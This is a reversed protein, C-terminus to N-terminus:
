SGFKQVAWAPLRPLADGVLDWHVLDTSRVTQINLNDSNTAYAYYTDGVKLVDPDPFDRALVPNTYTGAPAAVTGAATPTVVPLTATLIAVQTNLDTTTTVAPALTVTAIPTPTAAPESDPAACGALTIAM